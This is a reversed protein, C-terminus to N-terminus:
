HVIQRERRLLWLGALAALVAASSVYLATVSFSYAIMPGFASGLDVMMSYVTIVMAKDTRASSVDAAITDCLTTLVTAAAQIFLLVALWLMLPAPVPILAFLAATACLTVILLPIRRGSEDSKRGIWPALWPEWLWRAAQFLGGLMAANLLFSGAIGAGTLRLDLIHSLTSSFVGQFLYATLLGTLLAQAVPMALLDGAIRRRLGAAAAAQPHIGAATEGAAAHPRLDAGARVKVALFVAGLTLVAFALFIPRMGIVWVLGGGALMGFLSGLRSLGNYQGMLFGRNHESSLNLIAYFAGLRLFTWVLGWACRLAFWFWFGSAQAYLFTVVGTLIVAILMGTTMNMRRYLWSVIPNLPLRIFRNVSLLIGVEYLSTLGAERWYLPLVVYLMSDALLCIATILAILRISSAPDSKIKHTSSLPDLPNNTQNRQM